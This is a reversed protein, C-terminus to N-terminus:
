IMEGKKETFHLPSQIQTDNILGRAQAHPQKAAELFTLVPTMCLESEDALIVQWQAFTKTRIAEILAEKQAEISLEFWNPIALLECLRKQFKLELSGVAVYRGDATEYYDYFSGGNLEEAEPEIDEGLALQMPGFLPHLSLAADFMSIDLYRGTGTRLREIYATLIAIVGHLAGGGLDAIQMSSAVPREGKRRLGNAIGSLALYNIDHGAHNALPGTQGYGTIACYILSPYQEKLSAYGFGLRDMVGPRFQEVVIDYEELLAHVQKKGEPSKLDIEITKKGRNLQEYSASQGSELQPKLDKVVDRKGPAEVHLVEAGLDALIMTAFPGPLLTSFDLIKLGTLPGM